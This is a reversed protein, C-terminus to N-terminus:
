GLLEYGRVSSDNQGLFYVSPWICVHNIFLPFSHTLHQWIYRIVYFLLYMAKLDFLAQYPELHNQEVMVCKMFVTMM